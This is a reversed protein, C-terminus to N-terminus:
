FLNIVSSVAISSLIKATIKEYGVKQLEDSAGFYSRKAFPFRWYAFYHM